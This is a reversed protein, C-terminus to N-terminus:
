PNIIKRRRWAFAIISIVIIVSGIAMWRLMKEFMMVFMLNDINRTKWFVWEGALQTALLDSGTSLIVIGDGTSSDLRAVTNIAPGNNGDHGIIYENANNAAYLMPGLGWIDAGMQSAHPTKMIELTKDSLVSQSGPKAQASIFATLDDATTFLSTAALATYWRFPELEGKLNFNETLGLALAEEYNFTSRQMDLPAFVRESMFTSFSQQSVEEILLQLITYGGGSYKWESGPVADVKVEGSNGPSADLARALSDEISQLDEASSFGDYGLGDGLGATHSLLRRVTVGSHNFDSTPLQWRTLYKSIPSDLDIAGDEVLVMVGWSTIWKGLSAVQFVSSGDVAKGTSKFFREVPKGNEILVMVFNGTHTELVKREVVAKFAVPSDSNVIPSKMWGESTALFVMTNWILITVLALMTMAASKKLTEKM